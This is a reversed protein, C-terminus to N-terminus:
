AHEDVLRGDVPSIYGTGRPQLTYQGRERGEGGKLTQSLLTEKLKCVDSRRGVNTVNLKIM